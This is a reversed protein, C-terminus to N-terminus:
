GKKRCGGEEPLPIQNKCTCYRQVKFTGIYLLYGISGGIGSNGSRIEDWGRSHSEVADGKDNKGKGFGASFTDGIGWDWRWFIRTFNRNVMAVLFLSSKKLHQNAAGAFEDWKLIWSFSLINNYNVETITLRIRQNQQNSVMLTAYTSWKIILTLSTHIIVLFNTKENAIKLLGFTSNLRMAITKPFITPHLTFSAKRHM